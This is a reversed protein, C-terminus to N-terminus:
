RAPTVDARLYRFMHSVYDAKGLDVAARRLIAYAIMVHFYFQPVAWDRAYQESTLDFIMGNPLAHAIPTKPNAQAAEAALAEVINLTEGIRAQADVISGPRESADRGENLLAAIMDPFTRGQLRCVGGLAQVCAFRVQTSLPFMAPALRASLPADAEAEPLPAGAKTLWASLAGPMQMYTPLLIDPLKM